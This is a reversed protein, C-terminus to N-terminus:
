GASHERPLQSLKEANLRWYKQQHRYFAYRGIAAASLMYTFSKATFLLLLSSFLLLIVFLMEDSREAGNRYLSQMFMLLLPVILLCGLYVFGILGLDVWASLINHVYSGANGYYKVYVGYDGLLPHDAITQLGNAFLIQRSSWSSSQSLDLLEHVRNEPLLVFILELNIAVFLAISTVIALFVGRYRARFLEVLIIVFLVAILESRAGNLFMAPVCMVYLILRVAIRRIFAIVALFTFFYSRALGQYSAIVDEGGVAVDDKLSFFGDVALVMVVATMILMCIVATWKIQPAGFHATRFVVFVVLFHLIATIHHKVVEVNAGLAHNFAVVFFFYLLFGFFTADIRTFFQVSRFIRNLYFFLLIPVFALSVPSFYSGLVPSIRGTGLAAHYFFFGPFLTLFALHVIALSISHSSAKVGLPYHHEM